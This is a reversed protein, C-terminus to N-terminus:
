AHRSLGWCSIFSIISAIFFALTFENNILNELFIVGVLAVAFIIVFWWILDIKM